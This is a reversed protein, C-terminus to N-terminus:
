SEETSLAPALLTVATEYVWARALQNSLPDRYVVLRWCGRNEAIALVAGKPAKLVV